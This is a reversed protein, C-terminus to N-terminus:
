AISWRKSAEKRSLLLEPTPIGLIRAVEEEIWRRDEKSLVAIDHARELCLPYGQGLVAQALVVCHIREVEGVMEAPFEVRLINGKSVKLYFAALKLDTQLLPKSHVKFLPTRAGDPLWEDVVLRDNLYQFAQESVNEQFAVGRILDRSRTYFVGLPCAKLEIIRKILRSTHEVMKTRPNKAWALTYAQNLAEDLFVYKTVSDGLKHVAIEAAEREVEKTLIRVELNNGVNASVRPHVGEGGELKPYNVYWYGTNVLAYNVNFHAAPFHCSSDVSCVSIGQEELVLEPNRLLSNMDIDLSKWIPEEDLLLASSVTISSNVQPKITSLCELFRHITQSAAWSSVSGKLENLMQALHLRKDVLPEWKMTLSYELIFNNLAQMYKLPLTWIPM